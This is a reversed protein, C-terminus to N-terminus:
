PAQGGPQYILKVGGNFVLLYAAPDTRDQTLTFSGADLKGMPATVQVPASSEILTRDLRATMSMTEIRYGSATTLSVGDALTLVQGASDFEARQASIDIRQGDPTEVLAVMGSAAAAQEGSAPRAETASLTIGAGDATTGAYAPATMRPDRVLDKVDVEAYPIAATPDIRDALLFLTSLIALAALPLVVKLWGVLRSHFDARAM